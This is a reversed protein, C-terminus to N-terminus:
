KIMNSIVNLFNEAINIEIFNYLHHFAVASWHQLNYSISM